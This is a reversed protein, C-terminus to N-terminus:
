KRLRDFYGSINIYAVFFPSWYISAGSSFDSIGSSLDARLITSADAIIDNQIM